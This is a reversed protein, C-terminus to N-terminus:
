DWGIWERLAQGMVLDKERGSICSVHDMMRVAEEYSCRLRTFDTGWFVRSAGFADLVRCLGDHVDPFPFPTESFYPLTSAKVAVNAHRALPLLEAITEEYVSLERKAPAGLHDIILRLQPFRQAVRDIEALLLPPFVMIPIGLEQAAGWFADLAGELLLKQNPDAHFSIRVGRMGPTSRWTRLAEVSAPDELRLNGMVAFRDPLDRAARLCEDNGDGAFAPPILIARRVGAQDMLPLLEEYGFVGPLHQKEPVAVRHWVHVQADVKDM